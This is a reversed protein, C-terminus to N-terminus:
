NLATKTRGIDFVLIERRPRNSCCNWARDFRNRIWLNIANRKYSSQLTGTQLWNATAKGQTKGCIISLQHPAVHKTYKETPRLHYYSTMCALSADTDLRDSTNEASYTGIIGRHADRAPSAISHKRKKWLSNWHRQEFVFSFHGGFIQIGKIQTSKCSLLSNRSPNGDNPMWNLMLLNM